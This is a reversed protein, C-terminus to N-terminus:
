QECVLKYENVLEKIYNIKNKANAKNTLKLFAKRLKNLVSEKNENHIKIYMGFRQIQDPTVYMFNRSGQKYATLFKGPNNFMVAYDANRRQTIEFDDISIDKYKDSQIMDKLECFKNNARCIRKENFISDIIAKKNNSLNNYYKRIIFQIDINDLFHEELLLNLLKKYINYQKSKLKNAEM